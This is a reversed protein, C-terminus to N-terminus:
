TECSCSKPFRCCSPNYGGDWCDPWAEICSAHRREIPETPAQDVESPQGVKVDPLREIPDAPEAVTANRDVLLEFQYLVRGTPRNNEWAVGNKIIPEGEEVEATARMHGQILGLRRIDAALRELAHAHLEASDVPSEGLETV